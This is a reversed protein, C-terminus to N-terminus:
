HIKIFLVIKTSFQKVKHDTLGIITGKTNHAFIYIIVINNPTSGL